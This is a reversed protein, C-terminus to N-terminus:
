EHTLGFLQRLRGLIRGAEPTHDPGGGSSLAVARLQNRRQALQASLQRALGPHDSFLRAFTPRDLELLVSDQLAVVTAARREGTLLSMEGIYHGPGLRTIESQLTGARVSVEGSAVVYFTGGEEGEQIIREGQGFRRVVVERHLRELEEPGLPAFLDVQRLLDRVTTDALDRRKTTAERRVHVTRQAHPLEIGERRLRYWLRTHLEEKVSDSLAFDNLFVRVMYQVNSDTFSVTRAMPPPQVLVQPIERAVDLLAQKVQNPPADLSVGLQVEIGVPEHHQTFNKVHEKGVMSNPLTIVERRFNAIRISRWGIHMVRGTHEGIRIFDGVEFPRDLQLSLGAFLNGLTEQLALGIVVTLVASTALLGALDLNLQSQLIPVTALAYLTFDIVDRLIKPTTVPSRMRVLKLAFAVAARIVGYAFTLMWGVSVAKRLGDSTGAEPLFRSVLRLVLFAILMRVAGRLDDRLDPDRTSGRIGLLLVTLIVGALLPLHGELFNLM